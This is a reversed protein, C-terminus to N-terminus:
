KTSEIREWADKYEKKLIRTETLTLLWMYLRASFLLMTWYMEKITKPYGLAWIFGKRIENSFSKIKPFEPYYKTLTEHAKATRKRQKLWDKFNDPNKVYVLAREAYGIKYGKSFFLYPIASDEAVGIPFEKIINNRFAFLYGSCELFKRQNFREKRIRHAGADALLHSWYGLVNNKNNMSVVRGTVVGISPDKFLELIENISGESIYVDGDTLILIDSKIKKLISNIAYSKGIGPDKIYQIKKYKKVYRKVLNKAEEDPAVVILKYSYKIKQALIATIARELHPEKFATILISVEM